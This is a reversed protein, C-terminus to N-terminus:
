KLLIMKKVAQYEGSIIMYYYIGCAFESADWEVRHYGAMQRKSVLTSVKQGLLNYISLNVDNTIQLEYNIITKPNFPNPYNQELEYTFPISEDQKTVRTIEENRDLVWNKPDLEITAPKLDTVIEFSQIRKDNWVQVTDGALGSSQMIMVDLPMTFVEESGFEDQVQEIV